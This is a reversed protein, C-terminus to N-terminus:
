VIKVVCLSYFLLSGFKDFKFIRINERFSDLRLLRLEFGLDARNLCSFCTFIRMTCHVAEKLCQRFPVKKSWTFYPSCLLNTHKQLQPLSGQITASFTM